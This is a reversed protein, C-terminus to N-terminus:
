NWCSWNSDKNAGLNGVTGKESYGMFMLMELWGLFWQLSPEEKEGLGLNRNLKCLKLIAQSIRRSYVCEVFLPGRTEQCIQEWSLRAVKVKENQGKWLFRVCMQNVLKIVAKPLLFHQAWYNQIYFLVVQVLQARGTYSSTKAAWGNIKIAVKKLLPACDKVTLNRAVLPAGLYRVPLCGLTFGTFKHVEELEVQSMGASYVESKSPNLKLGYFTYFQELICQVGVISELKGKVFILLDDAFYLHTLKIKRVKPHYHFVQSAAAEDLLRSLVNMAM